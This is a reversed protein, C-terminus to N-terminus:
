WYQKAPYGSPTQRIEWNKNVWLLYAFFSRLKAIKVTTNNAKVFMKGKLTDIETEISKELDRINQQNQEDIMVAGM